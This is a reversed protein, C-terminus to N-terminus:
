RGKVIQLGLYALVIIILILPVLTPSLVIWWSWTVINKIKFMVFLITLCILAVGILDCKSVKQM